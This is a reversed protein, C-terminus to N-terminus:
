VFCFSWGLKASFSSRIPMSIYSQWGDELRQSDNIKPAPKVKTFLFLIKFCECFIFKLIKYILSIRFVLWFSQIGNEPECNSCVHNKPPLIANKTSRNHFFIRCNQSITASNNKCTAFKPIQEWLIANEECRLAMKGAGSKTTKPEDTTM